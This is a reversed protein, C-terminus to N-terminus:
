AIYIITYAIGIKGLKAEFVLRILEAFLLNSGGFDFISYCVSLYHCDSSKGWAISFVYGESDRCLTRIL